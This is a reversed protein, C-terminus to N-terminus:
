ICTLWGPYKFEKLPEKSHWCSHRDECYCSSLRHKLVGAQGVVHHIAMVGPVSCVLASELSSREKEIAPTDVYYFHRQSSSDVIHRESHNLVDFAAKADHVTLQESKIANDLFTKVVASEGDSEGKGHRSGFFNWTVKQSIEFNKSINYLPAKSKYQVGCGDSWFIIHDIHPYHITVHASFVEVFSKVASADHKLDPSIMVVSDHEVPGNKAFIAVM